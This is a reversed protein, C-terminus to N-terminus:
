EFIVKKVATGKSTEVRVFYIGAPISGRNLTYNKTNLQTESVVNRGIIDSLYVGNITADSFTLNVVFADKAPNPYVDIKNDIREEQTGVNLNLQFFMRPSLYNMVTDIYLLARGKSMNPNSRLAGCNITAGNAGGAAITATQDWYDWPSGEPFQSFTAGPLGPCTIPAGPNPTRFPFLNRVGENVASARTTFPDSYTRANLSNNNGLYNARRIATFTGHAEIVFGGTTPVIVAGIKYPAFPDSITHFGVMPPEGAELWSSDGMAGGLNFAMNFNSSYGVHNPRSLATSDTGFFNGNIAPRVYPVPPNVSNDILKPLTLEAAKNFSAAAFSLYGGTGIGGVVIKGTDIKYTNGSMVFNRKFFRICTRVDQVGRYAANILTSTRVDQSTSTPNWGLRYSIAAVVYGRKALQRCIESETSDKRSGTPTGNLIAPLFSGTHCMIILPRATAADGAPEYIDMTLPVLVPTGTLVQLNQGYNVNQTVNFSSFTPQLYRIQAVLTTASLMLLLGMAYLKKMKSKSKPQNHTNNQNSYKSQVRINTKHYILNPKSLRNIRTTFIYNKKYQQTM